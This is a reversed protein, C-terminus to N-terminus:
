AYALLMRRIEAFGALTEKLKAAPHPQSSTGAIVLDINHDVLLTQGHMGLAVMVNAEGDVYWCSRYAIKGGTFDIMPGFPSSSFVDTDGGTLIDRLWSHSIVQGSVLSRGLRALDRVTACMGGAARPTDGADLTLLADSEAGIVQWIHQHILDSFKKGSAREIVLGLVDINLSTYEFPGGPAKSAASGRLGTIFELLNTTKEGDNPPTWGMAFRYEHSDDDSQVGTRMDLLHRVTAHEYPTDKVEPLYVQVKAETDLVGQGVLVGAVLGTISKTMSMLIHKSDKDNGHAYHEYVAKGKHSVLFGDTNISELFAPLDLTEDGSTISFGNLNSTSKELHAVHQDSKGITETRIIQDVNVFGYESYPSTRWNSLNATM